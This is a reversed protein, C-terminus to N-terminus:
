EGSQSLPYVTGTLRHFLSGLIVVTLAGAVIPILAGSLTASTMMVIIPNAGAPPHTVRLAAMVVVALAVALAVSWWTVPLIAAVFLGSLTCIIQGGVVNAPQSFAGEPLTFVLACSSGLSAVLLHLPSQVDLWAILGVLLFTGLGALLIRRPALRPQHRAVWGGLEARLRGM